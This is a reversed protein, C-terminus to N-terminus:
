IDVRGKTRAVIHCKAGILDSLKQLEQSSIRICVTSGTPLEDVIEVKASKRLFQALTGSTFLEQADIGRRLSVVMEHMQM